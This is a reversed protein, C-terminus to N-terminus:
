GNPHVTYYRVARCPVGRWTHCSRVTALVVARLLYEFAPRPRLTTADLCVRYVVHVPGYSASYSAPSEPTTKIRWCAQQGDMVSLLCPRGRLTGFPRISRDLSELGDLFLVLVLVDPYIFLFWGDVIPLSLPSYPYIRSLHAHMCSTHTHGSNVEAEGIMRRLSPRLAAWTLTGAYRRCVDRCVCVYAPYHGCQSQCQRRMEGCRDWARWRPCLVLSFFEGLALPIHVDRILALDSAYARESNLLELLAHTRKSVKREKGEGEKKGGMKMEEPVFEEVEVGMDVGGAQELEAVDKTKMVPTEDDGEDAEPPPTNPTLVLTASDDSHQSDRHLADLLNSFSGFSRSQLAPM